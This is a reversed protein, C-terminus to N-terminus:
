LITCCHGAPKMVCALHVLHNGHIYSCHMTSLQQDHLATYQDFNVLLCAQTITAPWWQGDDQWLLEVSLGAMAQRNRLDIRKMILRELGPEAFM